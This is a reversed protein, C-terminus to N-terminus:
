NMALPKLNGFKEWEAKPKLVIAICSESTKKSYAINGARMEAQIQEPTLRYLGGSVADVAVGIIGGFVINGFVWKSMKRSFHIQYPEFGDLEIIVNHDENRSMNVAIPTMGRYCSDVFVNAGAPMSNIAVSQSPGNVITGCSTLALLM